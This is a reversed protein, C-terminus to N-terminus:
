EEIKKMFPMFPNPRGKEGGTIPIFFARIYKMEKFKPNDIMEKLKTMSPIPQRLYAPKASPSIPSSSSAPLRIYRILVFGIVLVIVILFLLFIYQKKVVKLM